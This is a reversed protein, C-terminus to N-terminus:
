PKAVELAMCQKARNLLNKFISNKPKKDQEGRVEAMLRAASSEFGQMKGSVCPVAGNFVAYMMRLQHGADRRRIASLTARFEPVTM